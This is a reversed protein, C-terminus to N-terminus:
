FPWNNSVFPENENGRETKLTERSSPSAEENSAQQQKQCNILM